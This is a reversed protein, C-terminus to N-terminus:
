LLLLLVVFFMIVNTHVAEAFPILFSCDQGEYARWNRTRNYPDMLMRCECTGNWCQGNPYSCNNLCEKIACDIGTYGPSCICRSVPYEESCYGNGHCNNSCDKIACDLGIFPPACLCTGYGDCIGNSRGPRDLSCSLKGYDAIYVDNDQHTYPAHCCHKCVQEEADQDYYCFDGPCSSNSCDYGYYGSHCKCFGYSCDGSNSCNKACQDISFEWLEGNSAVPLSTSQQDLQESEFGHGGFALLMRHRTSYTVAHHSRPSPQVWMLESPLDTRNDIRDRCGDWGPAQRRTINVVLHERRRGYLGDLLTNRTPYALVSTKDTCTDPYLAHVFKTKQLWRAKTTNFYWLDNSHFNSKYGGFLILMDEAVLMTHETRPGPKSKNLPQVLHWYGSAIDYRWLDSLFYDFVTPTFSEVGTAKLGGLGSGASSSIPFPYSVRYGAYLYLNDNVVVLSHGARSTPWVAFCITKKREEWSYGPILDDNLVTASTCNERSTKEVWDFVCNTQLFELTDNVGHGSFHHLRCSDVDWEWLDKMFGGNPYQETQAYGNLRSNSDGFGHWLRHGGFLFIRSNDVLTSATKWRKGPTSLKTLERWRVANDDDGPQPLLYVWADDCYDGCFHSYGGFMLLMQDDIVHMQQAYREAPHSCMEEGQILYCGGLRAGPDVVDWGGNECGDDGYRECALDYSWIDNFFVGSPIYNSKEFKPSTTGNYSCEALPTLPDIQIKDVCGEIFEDGEVLLVDEKSISPLPKQDYSAFELKGNNSVLEYTLPQHFVNADNSRGGFLMMKDGVMVM